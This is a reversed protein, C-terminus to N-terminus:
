HPHNQIEEDKPLNGIQNIIRSVQDIDVSSHGILFGSLSHVKALESINDANIGGGYVIKSEGYHLDNLCVRIFDVFHHVKDPNMIEDSGIHNSPEFAIILNSPDIKLNGLIAKLDEAIQKHSNEVKSYGICLVSKIGIDSYTQIQKQTESSSIKYINKTESYNIVVYESGVNKIIEPNLFGTGTAVSGIKQVGIKIKKYKLEFPFNSFFDGIYVSPPFVVVDLNDSIDQDFYGQLLQRAELPHTPSSKWNFGLFLKKHSM